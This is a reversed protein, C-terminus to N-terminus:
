RVGFVKKMPVFTLEVAEGVVFTAPAGPVYGSAAYFRVGPLTSMLEASTYGALKAEAECKELLARGIGTRAFRPHVFFARVKAADRGPELYNPDRSAYQDGGFLTRRKSWGGCGCLLGEMEAVFYTGDAILTTDVGFVHAIAAEIQDDTYYGRSLDRASLVVLDRIQDADRPNARRLRIYSTM